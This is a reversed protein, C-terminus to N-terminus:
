ARRSFKATMNWFVSALLSEFAVTDPQHIYKYGHAKRHCQPCLVILDDPHENGIRDYTLHHVELRYENRSLYEMRESELEEDTLSRLYDLACHPHQCRNSASRLAARRRERWAYTARYAAYEAKTM